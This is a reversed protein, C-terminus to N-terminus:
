GSKETRSIIRAPVGVVLTNDEVDKTVVSGAGTRANKGIKVPAVLMTDSGIFANEGIETLHKHEGDYNCTITGAGINVNQGIKANGIYSFHGMKTGQGLYSDKVEGFNGMHVGNALHAGKRLHCYPGMSVNNEILASECHSALLNCADGIVTDRIVTNPGIECDSGISTNGSITTNPFIVTDQGIKVDADIYTTAPDILTVGSLMLKENIRRRLVEAAEALHVRTNIGLGESPDDVILSQIAKGEGVAIEVLDTLYYEGKPSRQIKPLTRWLWKADFCYVSLNYERIALQEPTAVAEEVIAAVKNDADRVIRGFGRPVRGIISTMTLVPKTQSHWALLHKITDATILPMDAFTVLITDVDGSVSDKASLVAHGTGLQKEQLAFNANDGVFDRVLDAGHGVVIVPKTSCVPQVASLAYSVLPKGMLPHMVK